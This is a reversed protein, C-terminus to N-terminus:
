FPLLDCQEQEAEQQSDYFAALDKEPEYTALCTQHPKYQAMGCSPPTRRDHAEWRSQQERFAQAKKCDCHCVAVHVRAAGTKLRRWDRHAKGAWGIPFGEQQFRRFTDRFQELWGPHYITVTGRDDCIPCEVRREDNRAQQDRIRQERERAIRGAHSALFRALDGMEFYRPCALDRREIENIVQRVDEAKCDELTRSASHLVEQWYTEQARDDMPAYSALMKERWLNYSPDAASYARFAELTENFNM